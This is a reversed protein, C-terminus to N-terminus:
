SEEPSAAEADADASATFKFAHFASGVKLDEAEIIELSELNDSSESM